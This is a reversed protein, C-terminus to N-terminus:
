MRHSVNAFALRYIARRSSARPLGCAMLAQTLRSRYVGRSQRTRMSIDVDSGTATERGLTLRPRTLYSRIRLM